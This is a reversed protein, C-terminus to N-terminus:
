LKCTDSTGILGISAASTSRETGGQIRRRLFVRAEAWRKLELTGRSLLGGARCFLLLFLSLGFGFLHIFFLGMLALQLHKITWIIILDAPNCVTGWDAPPFDLQIKFHTTAM